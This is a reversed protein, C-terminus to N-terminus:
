ESPTVQEFEIEDDNGGYVEKTKNYRGTARLADENAPISEDSERKRRPSDKTASFIQAEPLLRDLPQGTLYDVEELDIVAQPLRAGSCHSCQEQPLFTFDCEM